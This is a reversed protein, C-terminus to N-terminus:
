CEWGLELLLTSLQVLDLATVTYGQDSTIGDLNGACPYTLATECNNGGDATICNMIEIYDNCNVLGDGNVDGIEAGCPGQWLSLLPKPIDLISYEVGGGYSM